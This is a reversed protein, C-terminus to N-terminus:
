KIKSIFDESFIPKIKDFDNDTTEARVERKFASVVSDHSIYSLSSQSMTEDDLNKKEEARLKDLINIPNDKKKKKKKKKKQSSDGEIYKLM